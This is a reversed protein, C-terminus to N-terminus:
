MARVPEAEKIRDFLRLFPKAPKRIHEAYGNSILWQLSPGGDHPTPPIYVTKRFLQHEVNWHMQQLVLDCASCIPKTTGTIDANCRICNAGHAHAKPVSIPAPKTPAPKPSIPKATKPKAVKVQKDAM